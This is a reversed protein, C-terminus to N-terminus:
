LPTKGLLDRDSILREPVDMPSAPYLYGEALYDRGLVIPVFRGEEGLVTDIGLRAEGVRFYDWYRRVDFLTHAPKELRVIREVMAAEEPPLGEPVLVSFRHASAQITDETSAATRARTPDGAVAARGERTLFREVIRVKSPRNPTLVYDHLLDELQEESMVATPYPLGLRNLEDRLAPNPKVAAAKFRRLTAELCPHLLLHLAFKIGDPTGRRDYLKRAYRIFLRRRDPVPRMPEQGAPQRREQIRAWLPDLVLGVWGALWNLVEAPASRADFLASVEAIKGEIETYFGEPNALLRELFSASEADEEYVAPLYRKPYSFRPYYARLARLQPTARGNGALVLKIQLYCGHAQQFLLEWTGTAEPQRELEPFPQYYPLEAGAGRLYLNPEHTFPVSELLERDNHARTWV